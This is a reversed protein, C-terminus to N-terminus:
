RLYKKLKRIVTLRSCDLRDAIQRQSFGKLSLEVIPDNLEPRHEQKTFVDLELYILSFSHDCSKCHYRQIRQQQNRYFGRKKSDRSGCEPCNM